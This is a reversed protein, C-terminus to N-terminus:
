CSAVLLVLAVSLGLAQTAAAGPIARVDSRPFVVLAEPSAPGRRAEVGTRLVVYSEHQLAVLESKARPKGDPDRLEVDYIGQKLGVVSNWRLEEFPAPGSGKPTRATVRPMSKSRGRYADFVVVQAGQLNSFVHSEFSVATSLTDHRYIILALVADNSPLDTVSFTGVASDGAKFELKDAERPARAFQRCEEYKMPGGTTLKDKGMWVDLADGSSYANCVRLVYQFELARVFGSDVSRLSHQEVARGSGSSDAMAFLATVLSTRLAAKTAM